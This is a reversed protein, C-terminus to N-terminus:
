VYYDDGRYLQQFRNYKEYVGKLSYLQWLRVFVPITLLLFLWCGTFIALVLLFVYLRHLNKVRRNIDQM